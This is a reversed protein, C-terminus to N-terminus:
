KIDPPETGPKEGAEARSPLVIQIPLVEGTSPLMVGTPPVDWDPLVPPVAWEATRFDVTTGRFTARRFDISTGTFKVHTLEITGGTFM